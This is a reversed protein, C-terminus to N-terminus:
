GELGAVTEVALVDDLFADIMARLADASGALVDSGHERVYELVRVKFDEAENVLANAKSIATM